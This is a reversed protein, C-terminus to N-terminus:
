GRRERRSEAILRPVDRPRIGLRRSQAQGYRGLRRLRRQALLKRGAEEFLQDPTKGEARAADAMATLLEEPVSVNKETTM